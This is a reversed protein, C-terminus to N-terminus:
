PRTTVTEVSTNIWEELEEKQLMAGIRRAVPQGSKFVVLTPLGRVVYDAKLTVNRDVDVKVVKVRGALANAVEDLVPDMTRCPLCRNAGFEVFVPLTSQLVERGFTASSVIGARTQETM